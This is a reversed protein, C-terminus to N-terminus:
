RNNCGVGDQFYLTASVTWTWLPTTVKAAMYLTEVPIEKLPTMVRMVKSGTMEQVVTFQITVEEGNIRDNDQEGYIQDNGAGGSITDDGENGRLEDQGDGGNILNAQSDGRM